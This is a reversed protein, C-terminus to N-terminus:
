QTSKGAQEIAQAVDLVHVHTRSWQRKVFSLMKKDESFSENVVQRSLIGLAENVTTAIVNPAPHNQGGAFVLFSIPIVTETDSAAGASSSTTSTAGAAGFEGFTKDVVVRGISRDRAVGADEGASKITNASASVDASVSPPDVPSSKTPNWTPTASSLLSRLSSVFSTHSGSAARLVSRTPPARHGSSPPSAVDGDSPLPSKSKDFSSTSLPSPWDRKPSSVRKGPNPGTDGDIKAAASAAWLVTVMVLLVFYVSVITM